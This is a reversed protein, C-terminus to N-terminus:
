KIKKGVLYFQANEKMRRKDYLKIIFDAVILSVIVTLVSLLNKNQIDPLFQFIAIFSIMFIIYIAYTVFSHKFVVEGQAKIEIINGVHVDDSVDTQIYVRFTKCGASCNKCNYGCPLVKKVLITALKGNKTEVKGILVLENEKRFILAM